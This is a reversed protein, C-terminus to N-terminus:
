ASTEPDAAVPRRVGGRALLDSLSAIRSIDELGLVGLVADESRVVVPVGGNEQLLRRVDSLPMEPPVSVPSRRMITALPTHLGVRGALAIVDDRSLTGIPTVGHSVLFHAQACRLTQDVATGVSDGPAFTVSHPDCVEGARLEALLVNTRATTREQGAGMFVLVAVFVLFPNHEFGYIALGVALVQALGAAINTARVQGVFFSLLARVVRGGDMPLAPLMNFAALMMNGYLLLVLLSRTSPTALGQKQLVDLDLVPIGGSRLALFLGGAIVVNVFPGALAILLEHLPKKPESLLRAVGGIPLLVIERVAVGFRQAVLGHGLEHLVVCAFLCLVLLVGFLAGRSGHPEALQAAVLVLLFAFTFHVRIDIGSVSGLRLSWRV